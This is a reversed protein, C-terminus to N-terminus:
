VEAIVKLRMLWCPQLKIRVMYRYVYTTHTHTHAPIHEDLVRHGPHVSGSGDDSISAGDGGGLLLVLGRSDAVQGGHQPRATCM